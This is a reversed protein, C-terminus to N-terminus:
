QKIIKLETRRNKERGEPNDSGDPKTNPALPAEAGYGRATVRRKDVGRSVLYAAVNDARRQSLLQNFAATGTSDTYGGIEVELAPYALLTDALQNLTIFSIQQLEASNLAYYVNELVRSTFVPVPTATDAATEPIVVVATKEPAPPVPVKHIAMLELCCVANRDSSFVAEEAPDDGKGMSLFYMDDKVSNVPYGFNVPVSWSTGNGTSYFLDYGGMGTRGDTAFVLKGSPAHYYPAQENGPTNLVAGANKVTVVHGMSNLEAYWIDYGGQGGPRDSVFLLYKGGPLPMPQQTNTGPKNILSDLLVPKGWANGTRKSAYVAAEKSGKSTNWATYYLTNGDESLVAAGQHTDAAPLEVPLPQALAGTTYGAQYIRNIHQKGGEPWTATFLLTGASLQAPAYSAGEKGSALAAITYAASDKGAMQQQIFQLNSLERKAELTKVSGNNGTQLFLRFAQEATAYHGLAREGSAYYFLALPYVAADAESVQKYLPTAKAIDTLQRYSEALQYIIATRGAPKGADTATVSVIYPDSGALAACKSGLYKEYYTAASAYDAKAYYRDAAKLYGTVSQARAAMGPLLLLLCLLRSNNGTFYKKTM